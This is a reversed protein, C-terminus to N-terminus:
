RPLSRARSLMRRAVAANLARRPERSCLADGSSLSEARAWELSGAAAVVISTSRGCVVRHSHGHPLWRAVLPWMALWMRKRRRGCAGCERNEEQRRRLPQERATTAAAAAAQQQLGVAAAAADWGAGVGMGTARAMEAKRLLRLLMVVVAAAAAANDEGAAPQQQENLVSRRAVAAAAAVYSVKKGRPPLNREGKSPGEPSAPLRAGM